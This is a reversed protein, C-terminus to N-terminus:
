GEKAQLDAVMQMAEPSIKRLQIDETKLYVVQHTHVDKSLLEKSAKNSKPTSCVAKWEGNVVELGIDHYHGGVSNCSIHEKGYSDHTHYIHCHEIQVINPDNKFPSINRLMIAVQLKFTHCKSFINGTNVTKISSYKDIVVKDTRDVSQNSEKLKKM